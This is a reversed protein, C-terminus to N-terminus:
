TLLPPGRNLIRCPRHDVVLEAGNTGVDFGTKATSGLDFVPQSIIGLHLSALGSCIPCSKEPVPKKGTTGDALHKLDGQHCIVIAM